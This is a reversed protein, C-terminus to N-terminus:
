GTDDISPEHTSVTLQKDTAVNASFGVSVEFAQTDSSVDGRRVTLDESFCYSAAPLCAGDPDGLVTYTQSVADGPALRSVSMTQKRMTGEYEPIWCGDRSSSPILPVDLPAGTEDTPTIWDAEEPILLLRADDDRKTGTISSFPLTPGGALTFQADGTNTFGIRLRAPHRESFQDLVTAEFSFDEATIHDTMSSTSGSPTDNQQGEELPPQSAGWTTCGAAAGLLTAGALQLISRRHM